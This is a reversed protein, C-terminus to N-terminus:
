GSARVTDLLAAPALRPARPATADTVRGPPVTWHSGGPRMQRRDKGEAALKKEVVAQTAIGAHDTGPVWLTRAGKMRHYRTMLDETAATLAHGMHLTGTVNPPPVTIVFQPEAPELYIQTEPKFYGNKEWFAYIRDEVQTPDYAKALEMNKPNVM